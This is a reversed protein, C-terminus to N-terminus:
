ARGQLIIEGSEPDSIKLFGQVHIGGHEDPAATEQDDVNEQVPEQNSTETNIM